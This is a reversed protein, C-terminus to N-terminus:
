ILSWTMFNIVFQVITYNIGIDNDVDWNFVENKILLEWMDNLKHYDILDMM